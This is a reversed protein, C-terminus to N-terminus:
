AARGRRARLWGGLAGLLAGAVTTIVVLLVQPHPLETTAAVDRAGHVLLIATGFLAGGVLGRLLGERAGEHELGALLGGLIGVVQLVLYVPESEGLMYGTVAGLLLPGVLVIAVAVAAPRDRLLTPM